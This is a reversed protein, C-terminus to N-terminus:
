LITAPAVVTSAVPASTVAPSYLGSLYPYLHGFGGFGGMMGWPYYGSLSTTDLGTGGFLGSYLYPNMHGFGGMMGWPYYGTTATTDLGTLGTGGLLGSNYLYPNMHGFGGMMGWPYYGTTATTDLGTLGTGGL